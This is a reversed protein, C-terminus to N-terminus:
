RCCRKSRRSAPSPSRSRRSSPTRSTRSTIGLLHRRPRGNKLARRLAERDRKSRLPPRVHCQTDFDSIDHETLHLHHATADASVPLGRKQAEAVM